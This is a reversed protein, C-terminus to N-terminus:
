RGGEAPVGSEWGGEGRVGSEGRVCRFGRGRSLQLSVAAPLAGGLADATPCGPAASRSRRPLSQCHARPSGALQMGARGGGHAAHGGRWGAGGAAPVVSSKM